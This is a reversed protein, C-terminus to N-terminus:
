LFYFWRDQKKIKREQESHSGWGYLSVMAMFLLFIGTGTLYMSRKARLIDVYNNRYYLPFVLLMYM